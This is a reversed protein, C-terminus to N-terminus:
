RPFDLGMQRYREPDDLWKARVKVFLFLHVRRDFMQEMDERALAGITKITRGGKGLVIPKQTNRQVYVVQEIRVSGDPREQWRETEVTSAYASVQGPKKELRKVTEVSIKARKALRVQDWRLLARAARIQESTLM